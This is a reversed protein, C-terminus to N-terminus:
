KKWFEFTVTGSYNGYVTEAPVVLVLSIKQTEYSQLVFTENAFIYSEIEKSVYMKLLVDFDYTNEIIVNRAGGGKPLVIGFNAESANLDIGLRDGVIFKVPVVETKLPKILFLSVSYLLLLIILFFLFVYFFSNRSLSLFFTDVTGTKNGKLLNKVM